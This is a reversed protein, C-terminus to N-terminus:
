KLDDLMCPSDHTAAFPGLWLMCAERPEDTPLKSQMGHLRRNFGVGTQGSM